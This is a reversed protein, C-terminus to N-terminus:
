ADNPPALKGVTGLVHAFIPSGSFGNGVWLFKSLFILCFIGIKLLNTSKARSKEHWPALSCLSPYVAFIPRTKQSLIRRHRHLDPCIPAMLPLWSHRHLTPVRPVSEDCRAVPWDFLRKVDTFSRRYQLPRSVPVHIPFQGRSRKQFNFGVLTLRVFKSCIIILL